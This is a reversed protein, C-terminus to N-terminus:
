PVTWRAEQPKAFFPRSQFPLPRLWGQLRRLSGYTITKSRSKRLPSLIQGTAKLNEPPIM